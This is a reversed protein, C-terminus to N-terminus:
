YERKSMIEIMDDYMSFWKVQIYERRNEYKPNRIINKDWTQIYLKGTHVSTSEIEKNELFDQVEETTAWIFDNVTGNIFADVKVRYKIDAEILFRRILKKKLEKFNENLKKVDEENVFIYDANSVRTEGTNNNTGDSYIYRLFKDIVKEDVNNLELYKKFKEIPEVHVSNKYGSKISIGKRKNRITIVIDTKAYKGYKEAKVIESKKVDSYLALLLDQYIPNLQGFKKNNLERIFDLENQYGNKM